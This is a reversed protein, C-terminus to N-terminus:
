TDSRSLCIIQSEPSRSFSEAAHSQTVAESLFGRRFRTRFLHQHGAGSATIRIMSKGTAARM